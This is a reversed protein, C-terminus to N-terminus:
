NPSYIFFMAAADGAASIWRFLFNALLAPPTPPVVADGRCAARAPGHSGRLRSVRGQRWLLRRPAPDLNAAPWRAAAAVKVRGVRSRQGTAPSPLARCRGHLCFATRHSRPRKLRRPRRFRGFPRPSAGSPPAHVGAASVSPCRCAPPRACPFFLCFRVLAVVGLAACRGGCARLACCAGRLLPARLLPPSFAGPRQHCVGPLRACGPSFARRSALLLFRAPM